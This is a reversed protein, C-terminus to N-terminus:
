KVRKYFAIAIAAYNFKPSSFSPFRAKQYESEVSKKPKLFGANYSTAYFKLKSYENSFGYKKKAMLALFVKLYKFQWGLEDLHMLRTKRAEKEDPKDILIHAYKKKLDSYKQIQAELSEVFSPKMQFPGISFNGYAKGGQIYLVKLSQAEFFNLVNSYQSIEPAVIAYVFAGKQRVSAGVEKFKTVHQGYFSISQQTEEPYAEFYTVASFLGFFIGIFVLTPM